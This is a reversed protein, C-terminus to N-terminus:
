DRAGELLEPLQSSFASRALVERAGAERAARILDARVHSVFALTRPSPRLEGCQRLVELPDDGSADLDIIVLPPASASQVASLMSPLDRVLHVGIGMSKATSAIKTAFILDTVYAIAAM